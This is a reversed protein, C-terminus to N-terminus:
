PAVNLRDGADTWPQPPGGNVRYTGIGRLFAWGRGIVGLDIDRGIIMVGVDRGVIHVHGHFGWYVDVGNWQGKGGYGDVDVRADGNPDKVLLIGEAATAHLDMLGKVAVVGTGHATLLGRGAVVASPAVTSPPPTAASAAPAFASFAVAAAGLFAAAISARKLM